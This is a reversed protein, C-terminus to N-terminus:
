KESNDVIITKPKIQVPPRPIWTFKGTMPHFYAAGHHLAMKKMKDMELYHFGGGCALGIFLCFLGVSVSKSDAKEKALTREREKKFRAQEQEIKEKDESM